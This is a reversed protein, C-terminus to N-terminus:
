LLLNGEKLVYQKQCLASLDPDHTVLILSKKLSILLEGIKKANARDLNGTPEDALILNPDNCLARAIAVRQREGGSLLKAPFDARDELGVLSLLDLGKQRTTAKRAIKAPMLVNELATFDELLNYAQFIFGIQTNRIHPCNSRTLRHGGIEIEGKDPEELGGLIHLLTTKGEGSRGCIAITDGLAVSLSIDSLVKVKPYTKILNRAKLIM